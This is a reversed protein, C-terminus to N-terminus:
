EQVEGDDKGEDMADAVEDSWSGGSPDPKLLAKEEATLTIPETTGGMTTDSVPKGSSTALPDATPRKGM